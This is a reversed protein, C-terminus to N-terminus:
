VYEESKHTLERAPVGLVTAFPRVDMSVVAGAGVTSKEGITVGPLIVASAGISCCDKLVPPAPVYDFNGARPYKDDCMTVNPGIFVNAGIVTGNPIFAGTQIRTGHGITVRKGIWVGAGIVTNPGIVTDSCVTSYQYIQCDEAINASPHITSHGHLIM